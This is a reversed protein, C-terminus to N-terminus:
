LPKGKIKRDPMSRLQKIEADSESTELLNLMLATTSGNFVRDVLDRLMGRMTAQESLRARYIYSRDKKTRKLYGKNTMVNMTTMVTNFALDRQDALKDRVTRITVPGERWIIKLELETPYYSASRTM